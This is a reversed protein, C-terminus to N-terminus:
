DSEIESTAPTLPTIRGRIKQLGLSPEFYYPNIRLAEQWLYAAETLRDQRYRVEGLNYLAKDYRPNMKLEAQFEKEAAALNNQNLYIVGINNHAMPESSNLDLAAQYHQTAEEPQGDLYYMAGLNRQALPSHPADHAAAQWFVLRNEFSRSHFLTIAVLLLIVFGAGWRTARRSFNMDKLWDIESLILLLGFFSLYVRHELFDPLDNLRIFSPLLFLILWGAGFIIYRWRKRSSFGLALGVAVLAAFGYLLRSDVLIPLVSLNFPFIMKGFQVLFAPSNQWIGLLASFYNIPEKELVFNRMLFWIFGVAGSGVVLLWRDKSSSEGKDILWFYAIVLVPLVVATEKILLSIFLLFLFILYWAIRPRKLFQLIAIFAAFVFVALLSDNRGPLWAVAQVLVPHILFMLSLGFALDRRKIILNLLYFALCVALIHLWINSLHYFFPAPGGVQADLMFSLNLLPRYYFKDGSFFADTSFIKGINKPSELISIKDLILANDDFYTFDFFLTQGYLLFGFLFIFFYPRWTSLWGPSFFHKKFFNNMM